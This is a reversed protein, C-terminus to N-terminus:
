PPPLQDRTKDGHGDVSCGARGHRCTAWPPRLLHPSSFFPLHLQSPFRTFHPAEISNCATCLRYSLNSMVAKGAGCGRYEIEILSEHQPQSVVVHIDWPQTGAKSIQLFSFFALTAVYTSLLSNHTQAFETRDATCCPTATLM